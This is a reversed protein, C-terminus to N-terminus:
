GTPHGSFRLLDPVRAAVTLMSVALLGGCVGTTAAVGIVESIAGLLLAAFPQIGIALEQLGLARGHVTPATLMLLLTTQLVGFASSAMGICAMLAYSVPISSSLAFMAWLAGWVATGFVFLGGKFRFDGLAAIVLSGVLGGIGGCTLLWGLGSADLSLVDKAFVPMFTQYIPWILINAILTISLVAATFRSSLVIRIGDTLLGAVSEHGSKGTVRGYRRIPWLLIISGLFWLTSIWLATTAGFTSIMAGGMAPGLVQTTNMAISNLANANSLSERGVIDFVLASRAPQAPSQALGICFGGVVITWYTLHQTSGLTALVIVVVFAWLCAVLVFRGRDTRDSVVGAVPGLLMPALRIAAFIALKFESNTLDYVLWGLILTQSWAGGFFFLNSLWLLRFEPYRRVSALM